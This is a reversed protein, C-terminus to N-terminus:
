PCPFFGGSGGREIVEQAFAQVPAPILSLQQEHNLNNLQVLPWFPSIKDCISNQCSDKNKSYHNIGLASQTLEPGLNM